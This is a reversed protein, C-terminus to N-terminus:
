GKGRMGSFALADLALGKAPVLKNELGHETGIWSVTWGRRQM